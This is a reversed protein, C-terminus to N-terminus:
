GGGPEDVLAGRLISRGSHGDDGDRPEISIDVVSFVGPDYTPPVEHVEDEPRDRLVGLSVLDTPQGTADPAILWLELDAEPGVDPPLRADRLEIRFGSGSDVLAATAATGAGLPDFAAADHTLTASAVVVSTTDGSRLVMVVSGAIVALAAAAAVLATVPRFRSWRNSSPSSLPTVAVDGDAIGAEIASWLDVPPDARVEDDPTLERLLAEIRTMDEQGGNDPRDTM